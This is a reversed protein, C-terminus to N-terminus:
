KSSLEYAVKPLYKQEINIIESIINNLEDIITTDLIYNYRVGLDLIQQGYVEVLEAYSLWDEKILDHKILCRIHTTYNFM